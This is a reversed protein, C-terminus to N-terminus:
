PAGAAAAALPLRSLFEIARSRTEAPWEVQGVVGCLGETRGFPEMSGARLASVVTDRRSAHVRLVPAANWASRDPQLRIERGDLTLICLMVLSRSSGQVRKVGGGAYPIAWLVNWDESHLTAIDKNLTPLERGKHFGAAVASVTEWPSYGFASGQRKTTSVQTLVLVEDASSLVDAPIHPTLEPAPSSERSPLPICGTLATTFVMIAAVLVNGRATQMLRIPLQWDM